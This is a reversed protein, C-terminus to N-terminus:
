VWLRKNATNWPSNPHATSGSINGNICMSQPNNMCSQSLGSSSVDLIRPMILAGTHSSLFIPTKNATGKRLVLLHMHLKENVFVGKSVSTLYFKHVSCISTWSTCVPIHETERNASCLSQIFTRFSGSSSRAPPPCHWIHKHGADLKLFTIHNVELPFLTVPKTLLLIM